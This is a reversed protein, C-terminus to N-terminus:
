LLFLYYAATRVASNPQLLQRVIHMDPGDPDSNLANWIRIHTTLNGLYVAFGCIYTDDKQLQLYEELDIIKSTLVQIEYVDETKEYKRVRRISAIIFSSGPTSLDHICTPRRDTLAILQGPEPEFIDGNKDTDVTTNMEIKYLLDYPPSYDESYDIKIIEWTPAESVMKISSQLETRTEEILPSIFSNLYHTESPFTKPIQRM